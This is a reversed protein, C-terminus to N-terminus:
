REGAAQQHLQFLSIHNIGALPARPHEIADASSPARVSAAQPRRSAYMTMDRGPERDEAEVYLQKGGAEAHGSRGEIRRECVRRLATERDTMRRAAAILGRRRSTGRLCVM